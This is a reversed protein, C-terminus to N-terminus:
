MQPAYVEKLELVSSVGLKEYIKTKFTSITSPKLNMSLSIEGMKKGKLMLGIVEEERKTLADFPSKATSAINPTQLLYNKFKEEMFTQGALVEQVGHLIAEAPNTIDVVGKIGAGYLRQVNSMGINSTVALIRMAPYAKLVKSALEMTNPDLITVLLQIDTIVALEDLVTNGSEITQVQVEPDKSKLLLELGFATIHHSSVILIKKM